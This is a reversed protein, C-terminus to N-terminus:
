DWDHVKKVNLSLYLLFHILMLTVEYFPLFWLLGFDNTHKCMKWYVIYQLCFRVSFILLVSSWQFQCIMLILFLLWFSLQSFFNLGLLFLSIFSFQKVLHFYARQELVWQKWKKQGRILTIAEVDMCITVNTSNSVEEVFLEAEGRSLNLHSFFGNVSFFLDRDYGLNRRQALLPFGSLTGSFSLLGSYLYKYRILRNLFGKNKEPKSYALVVKKKSTFAAQMKKLWQNSSPYSDADSFLLTDYSAAKIALTLAFKNGNSFRDNEQFTNNVVKLYEYTKQLQELYDDTGDVSADNIVVIEFQPYDQELFKHLNERLQNIQNKSSIVVSVPTIDSTTPTKYFWIRIFILVQYLLQICSAILFLYFLYELSTYM